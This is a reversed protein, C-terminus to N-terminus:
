IVPQHLPWHEHALAMPGRPFEPTSGFGIRGGPQTTLSKLIIHVIPDVRHHGNGGKASRLPNVSRSRVFNPGADEATFEGIAWAVKVGEDLGLDSLQSQAREM